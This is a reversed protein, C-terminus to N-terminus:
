CGPFDHRRCYDNALGRLVRRLQNSLNLSTWKLGIATALRRTPVSLTERSSRLRSATLASRARIFHRTHATSDTIQCYVVGLTPTFFLRCDCRKKRRRHETCAFSLEDTTKALHCAHCLVQCKALEAVRLPNNPALSWLRAPMLTKAMRDIHDVELRDSSGCKRCPGNETIWQARRRLMWELQYARQAERTAMPM